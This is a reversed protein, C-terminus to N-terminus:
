GQPAVGVDFSLLMPGGSAADQYTIDVVQKGSGTPIERVDIQPAPNQAVAAEQFMQSRVLGLITRAPTPSGIKALLGCGYGPEWLYSRQPTFLRRIVREIGLETGDAIVLDGAPTLALDGGWRLPVALDPM